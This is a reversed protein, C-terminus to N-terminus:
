GNFKFKGSNKIEKGKLGFGKPGVKATLCRKWDVTMETMGVRDHPLKPGALTPKVTALDLTVIDNYDPTPQTGDYSRFLGQERLYKEIWEIREESRGSLRLYDLTTSDVPFFGM